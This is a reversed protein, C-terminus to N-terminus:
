LPMASPTSFEFKRTWVEVAVEDQREVLLPDRRLVQREEEAQHLMQGLRPMVQGCGTLFRFPSASPLIAPRGAAIM